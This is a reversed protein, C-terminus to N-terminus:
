INADKLLDDLHHIMFNSVGISRVLKKEYLKEAISHASEGKSIDILVENVDKPLFILLVITISTVVVLIIISIIIKRLVKM